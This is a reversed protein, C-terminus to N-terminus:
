DQLRKIFWYISKLFDINECKIVMEIILEKYESEPAQGTQTVAYHDSVRKDM